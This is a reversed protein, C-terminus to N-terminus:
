VLLGANLTFCSGEPESSITSIVVSMVVFISAIHEKGDYGVM